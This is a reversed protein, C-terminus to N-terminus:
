KSLHNSIKSHRPRWMQIQLNLFEEDSIVDEPIVKKDGKPEQDAYQQFLDDDGQEIDNDSDVIEPEYDSDSSNESDMDEDVDALKRNSRRELRATMDEEGVEVISKKSPSIM